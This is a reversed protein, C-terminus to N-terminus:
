KVVRAIRLLDASLDHKEERMRQLNVVIQAGGADPDTSVSVDGAETLSTSGSISLIGAEACLQKVSNLNTEPLFYVLSNSTAWDESAHVGGGDSVVVLQGGSRIEISEGRWVITPQIGVNRFGNAIEEAEAQGKEAGVVFVHLQRAQKLTRDYDLVKKFIAGHDGASISADNGQIEKPGLVFPFLLLVFIITRIRM